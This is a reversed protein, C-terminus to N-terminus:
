HNFKSLGARNFAQMVRVNDATEDLLIKDAVTNTTSVSFAKINGYSAPLGHFIDNLNGPVQQYWIVKRDVIVPSQALTDSKTVIDPYNGLVVMKLIPSNIVGSPDQGPVITTKNSPM